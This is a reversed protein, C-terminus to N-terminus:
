FGCMFDGFLPSKSFLFQIPCEGSGKEEQGFIFSSFTTQSRSVIIYVCYYHMCMPSVHMTVCACVYVHVYVCICVYLCECVHHVCLSIFCLEMVIWIVNHYQFKIYTKRETHKHTHRHRDIRISHM